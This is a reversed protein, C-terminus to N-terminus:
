SLSFFLTNLLTLMMWGAEKATIGGLLLPLALVPFIAGLAYVVGLSTAALKGTVVDYGKLDTLFLLGLTGDRKECSICDATTRIGAMLCFVFALVSLTGFIDRGAEHPPRGAPSTLAMWAVVAIAIFAVAVRILFTNRRRAVVRLERAVIPLTNM